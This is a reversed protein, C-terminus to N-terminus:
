KINVNSGRSELMWVGILILFRRKEKEKKWSIRQPKPDIPVGVAWTCSKGLLSRRDSQGREAELWRRLRRLSSTISRLSHSSSTTRPTTTFRGWPTTGGASARTRWRRWRESARRLSGLRAQRVWSSTLKKYNRLSSTVSQTYHHLHHPLTQTYLHTYIPLQTTFIPISNFGSAASPPELKPNIANEGRKSPIM